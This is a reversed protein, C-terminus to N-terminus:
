LTRKSALEATFVLPHSACVTVIPKMVHNSTSVLGGFELPMSGDLDWKLGSTIISECPCGLPILGCTPGEGMEPQEGDGLVHSDYFPLLIQCEKKAPVLFAFTEDSYLYIQGDFLPAWKYLAAFSAMEQDFRGGFAGYIVVRNISSPSSSDNGDADVLAQLAKDLDNTDQCFDQEVSVDRGEYYARVDPDLSDLDGRIRDPILDKSYQYLRNAGGDAAIRTGSTKWLHELLVSKNPIKYNLVILATRTAEPQQQRDDGRPDPLFSSSFTIVDKKSHSGNEGDKGIFETSM